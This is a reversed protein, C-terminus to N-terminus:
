RHASLHSQHWRIFGVPSLPEGCPWGRQRGQQQTFELPQLFLHILVAVTESSARMAIDSLRESVGSRFGIVAQRRHTHAKQSRWPARSVPQQQGRQGCSDPASKDRTTQMWGGGCRTVCQQKIADAIGTPSLITGIRRAICM